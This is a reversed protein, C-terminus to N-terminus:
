HAGARRRRHLRLGAMGAAGALMLAWAAPEPVPAAYPQQWDIGSVSTLDFQEFLVGGVVVGLSGAFSLGLGPDLFDLLATTPTSVGFQQARPGTTASAYVGWDFAEGLTVPVAFTATDAFSQGLNGYSSTSWRVRQRDTTFLDGQTGPHFGAVNRMLEVGNKYATAGFQAIGTSVTASGAVDVQFLWVAAGAQGGVAITSRDTWGGNAGGQPSQATIPASNYAALGIHGLRAQAQGWNAIAPESYHAAAQGIVGAGSYPQADCSWRGAYAPPNWHSALSGGYPMHLLSGIGAACAAAFGGPPVVAAQHTQAQAGIAALAACGAVVAASLHRATISLANKQM